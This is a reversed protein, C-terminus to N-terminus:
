ICSVLHAKTRSEVLTEPLFEASPKPKVFELRWAGLQNYLDSMMSTLEAASALNFWLGFAKNGFSDVSRDDISTPRITDSQQRGSAANSVLVKGRERTGRIRLSSSKCLQMQRALRMDCPRVYNSSAVQHLHLLTLARKAWSPLLLLFPRRQWRQLKFIRHQVFFSDSQAWAWWILRAAM